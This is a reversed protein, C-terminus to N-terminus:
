LSERLTQERDAAIVVLEGQRVALLRRTRRGAAAGELAARLSELEDDLTRGAREARLVAVTLEGGLDLGAAAPPRREVEDVRGAILREVLDRTARGSRRSMRSEERLYGEAAHATITDMAEHLRSGLAFAAERSLDAAQSQRSCARWYEGQAVRYAHLFPELPIGQDVRRAVRTRIVELDDRDGVIEGALMQGLLRSTEIALSELDAVVDAGAAEYEPIQSVIRRAMSRGISRHRRLLTRGIEEIRPDNVATRAM